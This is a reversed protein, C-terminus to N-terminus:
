KLFENTFASSVDVKKEMLNHEKLWGAYNTWTESKQFGWTQADEKYKKSLWEQSKRVLDPNLEPASKILINGAESPSSIAFEYGLRVAKMFASVMGKKNKIHDENTIIVPTYYDLLPNLDRIIITNLAINRRQAEIGDWGFFIWQFDSDKGITKFFDTEGITINKVKTYDAGADQMVAKLTAEEVPSGWGGYRKGEFDKVEKVKEKSLSAFCSSNHQIIAAISVLPIDKARALTVAEQSSIAFDARGSAVAQVNDAEAPQLITVELNEREFFGKEKAAFIGTHNTNPSWDLLVIVKQNPNNKVPNTKRLNTVTYLFVIGLLLFVSSLVSIKKM